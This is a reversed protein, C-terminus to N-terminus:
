KKVMGVDVAVFKQTLDLPKILASAYGEKNSSIFYINKGVLFAYRGKVDTVQTELLKNFKQDFIRIVANKLPEKSSKDYVV